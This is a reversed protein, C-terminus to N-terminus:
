NLYRNVLLVLRVQVTSGSGMSLDGKITLKQNFTKEATIEASKGYQVLNTKVDLGNLTGDLAM